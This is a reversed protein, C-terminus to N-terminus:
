IALLLGALPVREAPAFVPEAHTLKGWRAAARQASRDSAPPMVPLDVVAAPPPDQEQQTPGAATPAALARGVTPVSVGSQTPSRRCRRAAAAAVASTLPWTM